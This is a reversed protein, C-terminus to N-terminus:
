DTCAADGHTLVIRRNAVEIISPDPLLTLGAADAFAKGILFDRNGGIWFLETGANAVSRLASIIHRHYPADADDDGAWYEFIDGLLYLSKSRIARHQLFDLFAQTTVPLAPSLHIYSVFLAVVAPQAKDDAQDYFATH